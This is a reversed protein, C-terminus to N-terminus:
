FFLKPSGSAQYCFYLHELPDLLLFCSPVSHSTLPPNLSFILYYILLYLIKLWSLYCSSCHLSFLSILLRLMPLRRKIVPWFFGRQHLTLLLCQSSSLSSALCTPVLPLFLVGPWPLLLRLPRAEPHVKQTWHPPWDPQLPVLFYPVQVHPWFNPHPPFLCVM